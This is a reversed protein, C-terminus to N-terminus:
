LLPHQPPCLPHPIPSPLPESRIGAPSAAVSSSARGDDGGADDPADAGRRGVGGATAAAPGGGCVAFATAHPLGNWHFQAANSSRPWRPGGAVALCGGEIVSRKTRLAGLGMGGSTRRQHHM